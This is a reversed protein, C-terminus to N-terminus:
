SEEAKRDSARVEETIQKMLGNELLVNAVARRRADDVEKRSRSDSKLSKVRREVENYFKKRDPLKVRGGDFVERATKGSLMPRPREENLDHIAETIRGKLDFPSRKRKMAREFSKIDRVAREMKGNYPPYHPPSKLDVVHYEDLLSRVNEEDFIKDGDHKLILPAGHEGFAEKLYDYVDEGHAPGGVLKTNVKFRSCEDQLILLEKKKGFERFGAGDESWMVMPATIEYRRPKEKKPSSEKIDEIAKSVTSTSYKGLNERKCWDVVVSPGWQKYHAVYCSRIKMKVEASIVEPRGLKAGSGAQEEDNLNMWKKLSAEQVGLMQSM